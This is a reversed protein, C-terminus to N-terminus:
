TKRIKGGTDMYIKGNNLLKRLVDEIDNEKYELKEYLEERTIGKSDKSSEILSMIQTELSDSNTTKQVTQKFNASRNVSSSPISINSANQAIQKSIIQKFQIIELDRVSQWNPDDIIRIFEPNLYIEDNTKRKRVKAVTDIIDGVQVHYFMEINDDWTRLRIRGTGDELVLYAHRGVGKQDEMSETSEEFEFERKDIVTGMVRVRTIRVGFNKLYSGSDDSIYEGNLIDKISLKYATARKQFKQPEATM